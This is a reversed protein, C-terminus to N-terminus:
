PYLNRCHSMYRLIPVDSPAGVIQADVLASMGLDDIQSPTSFLRAYHGRCMSEALRSMPTGRRKVVLRYM